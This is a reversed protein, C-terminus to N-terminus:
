KHKKKKANKDPTIFLHVTNLATMEVYGTSVSVGRALACLTRTSPGACRPERSPLQARAPRRCSKQASASPSQTSWLKPPSSGGCECTKTRGKNSGALADGCEGM